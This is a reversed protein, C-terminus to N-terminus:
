DRKVIGSRERIEFAYGNEGVLSDGLIYFGMRRVSPYSIMECRGFDVMMLDFGLAM